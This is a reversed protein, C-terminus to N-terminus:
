CFISKVDPETLYAESWAKISKFIL